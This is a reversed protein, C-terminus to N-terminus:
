SYWARVQICPAQTSSSPGKEDNISKYAGYLAIGSSAGVYISGNDTVWDGDGFRDSQTTHLSSEADVNIGGVKGDMIAYTLKRFDMGNNGAKVWYLTQVGTFSSWALMSSGDNLQISGGFQVREWKSIDPVLEPSKWVVTQYKNGAILYFLGDPGQEINVSSVEGDDGPRLRLEQTTLCGLYASSTASKSGMSPGGSAEFAAQKVMTWSHQDLGDTWLESQCRQIYTKIGKGLADKCIEAYKDWEGKDTSVGENLKIITEMLTIFTVDNNSLSRLKDWQDSNKSPNVIQKFGNLIKIMANQEDNGNKLSLFNYFLVKSGKGVPKVAHGIVPYTKTWDQGVLITIEGIQGGNGPHNCGGPHDTDLHDWWVVEGAFNPETIVIEHEKTGNGVNKGDVKALAVYGGNDQSHTIIFYASGDEDTINLRMLYEIHCTKQDFKSTYHAPLKGRKILFSSSMEKPLINPDNITRRQRTDTGHFSITSGDKYIQQDIALSQLAGWQDSNHSPHSINSFGMLIILLADHDNKLSADVAAQKVLTWSGQDLEDTWLESQCRQIYTRIGKASADKCIEAYKDWEGKDTSIGENLFIVQSMLSQFTDLKKVSARALAKIDDWQDSNHSPDSINSFGTLITLLSDHDNHVSASAAAQKVM